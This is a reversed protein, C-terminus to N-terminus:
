VWLQMIPTTSKRSGHLQRQDSLVVLVPEALPLYEHRHGPLAVALDRQEVPPLAM